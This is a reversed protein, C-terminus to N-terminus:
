SFHTAVLFSREPDLILDQASICELPKVSAYQMVTSTIHPPAESRLSSSCTTETCNDAEKLGQPESIALGTM